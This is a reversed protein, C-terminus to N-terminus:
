PSNLPLLIFRGFDKLARGVVSWALSARKLIKNFLNSKGSSLTNSRKEPVPLIEYSNAESPQWFIVETSISRKWEAVM